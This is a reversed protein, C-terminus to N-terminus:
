ALLEELQKLSPSYKEPTSKLEQRVLNKKVWAIQEVEEKQVTFDELKWDAHATYMQCFYVHESIVKIKRWPIFTIGTIGIEEQAEKYINSEYREDIEVTSAAACSWKDPNCVKTFKHQALLIEGHSNTLWLAGVRYIDTDTIESREKSGIVRDQEDVLSILSM